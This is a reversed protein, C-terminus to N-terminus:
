QPFMFWFQVRVGRDSITDPQEFKWDDPKSPKLDTQQEM